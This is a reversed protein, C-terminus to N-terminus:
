SENVAAKPFQSGLGNHSILWFNGMDELRIHDKFTVEHGLKWNTLYWQFDKQYVRWGFAWEDLAANIRKRTTQTRWGGSNLTIAGNAVRAAVVTSHYQLEISGDDYTTRTTAVGIHKYAIVQRM